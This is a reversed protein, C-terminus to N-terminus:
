TLQISTCYESLSFLGFISINQKVIKITATLVERKRTLRWRWERYLTRLNFATAIMVAEARVNKLGRLLFRRFGMQEKMIGFVPEILEKRLSYIAKAEETAMWKRHERLYEDFPGIRIERGYKGSKTCIGFAKCQRCVAGSNRFVMIILKNQVEMFSFRLPKGEPCIYTDTAPDYVFKDKHYPNQLMRDQSEPMVVKMERKACDALNVGSHFGADTLSYDAQKGTNEKAQDLMPVMQYNDAPDQVADVATIIMGKGKGEGEGITAPSAIAEVNYAPVIGQRSKMLEANNDTLNIREQEKNETLRQMAAKVQERLQEAKRLAEPLRVPPPANDAENQREMEDIVKDLRKLLKNLGSADYTRDKSANAAVKTGDLAQVALDILNMTVATKVTKKFLHRMEERHDKYFRWFTNHDPHQWGTLWLYPIEDRCAAELKRTSRDGTMFGYLWVGLLVRPDYPPAGRSEGDLNIELKRWEEESLNDVFAAIFRVAHDDPIMEDLTPPFLWPQQRTFPRVPM